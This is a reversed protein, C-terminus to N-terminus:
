LFLAVHSSIASLWYKATKDKVTVLSFIKYLIKCFTKSFIQFNSNEWFPELHDRISFNLNLFLIKLFIFNSLNNM